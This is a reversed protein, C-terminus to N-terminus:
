AVGNALQSGLRLHQAQRLLGVEALADALQQLVSILLAAQEAAAFDLAKALVTPHHSCWELLQLALGLRQHVLCAVVEQLGLGVQHFRAPREVWFM